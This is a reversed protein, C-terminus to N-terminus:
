GRTLVRAPENELQSCVRNRGSRKALYLGRDARELMATLDDAEKYTSIGISATLRVIEAFNISTAPVGLEIKEINVRVREAVIRAAELSANPLMCTFEEGGWRALVDVGRVSDQMQEVAACIAQDGASHGFRDNIQKFHDLDIMLISFCSSEEQARKLEKECWMLFVRRNFLRTLPDTSALHDLRTSLMATTMWFFGFALGLAVAIYLTYTVVWAMYILHEDHLLGFAWLGVRLLNYATFAWLLLCSFLAPIRIQRKALDWLIFGTEASQVAILFSSVSVRLRSGGYHLSLLDGGAQLLLLALGVRPVRSPRGALELVAVQLLVFALLILLDALFVGLLASDSLAALLAAGVGGVAFAGGLWGLGKLAPHTFRAILLGVSGCLLVTAGLVLIVQAEMRERQLRAEGIELDAM